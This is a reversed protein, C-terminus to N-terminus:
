RSKRRRRGPRARPRRAARASMSAPPRAARRPPRRPRPSRLSADDVHRARSGLLFSAMPRGPRKRAHPTKPRGCGSEVALAHGERSRGISIYKLSQCLRHFRVGGAGPLGCVGKLAHNEVGAPDLELQHLLQRVILHQPGSPMEHLWRDPLDPVDAPELLVPDQTVEVASRRKQRARVSDVIREFNGVCAAPVMPERRTPRRKGIDPIHKSPTHVPQARALRTGLLRVEVRQGRQVLVHVRLVQGQDPLRQAVGPGGQRAEIRHRRCGHDIRRVLRAVDLHAAAREHKAGRGVFGEDEVVLLPRMGHLHSGEPDGGRGHRVGLVLDEDVVAAVAPTLQPAAPAPIPSPALLGLM